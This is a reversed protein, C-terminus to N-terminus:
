YSMPLPRNGFQTFHSLLEAVLDVRPEEAQVSKLFTRIPVIDAIHLALMWNFLTLGSIGTLAMYRNFLPLSQQPNGDTYTVFDANDNSIAVGRGEKFFFITNSLFAGNSREYGNEELYAGAEELFFPNNVKAM